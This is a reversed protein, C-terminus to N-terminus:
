ITAFVNVAAPLHRFGIFSQNRVIVDAGGSQAFMPQILHVGAPDGLMQNDHEELGFFKEIWAENLRRFAEGDGPQYPRLQISTSSISDDHLPLDALSLTSSM